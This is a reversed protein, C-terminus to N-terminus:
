RRSTGFSLVQALCTVSSSVKLWPGKSSHCLNLSEFQRAEIGLSEKCADMIEKVKVVLLVEILCGAILNEILYVFDDLCGVWYISNHNFIKLM